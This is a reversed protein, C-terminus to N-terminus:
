ESSTSETEVEQSAFNGVANVIETAQNAIKLILDVANPVAIDIKVAEEISHIGECGHLLIIPTADVDSFMDLSMEMTPNRTLTLRERALRSSEEDYFELPVSDKMSALDDWEAMLRKKKLELLARLTKKCLIGEGITFTRQTGEVNVEFAEGLPESM